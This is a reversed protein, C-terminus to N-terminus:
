VRLLTTSYRREEVGVLNNQHRIRVCTKVMATDSWVISKNKSCHTRAIQLPKPLRQCIIDFSALEPTLDSFPARNHVVNEKEIQPVHGQAKNIWLGQLGQFIAVKRPLQHKNIWPFLVTDLRSLNVNPYVLDAQLPWGLCVVTTQARPQNQEERTRPTHWRSSVM